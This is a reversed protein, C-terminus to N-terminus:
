ALFPFKHGSVAENAIAGVELVAMPRFRYAVALALFMGLEGDNRHATNTVHALVLAV